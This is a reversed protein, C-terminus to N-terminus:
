QSSLSSLQSQQTLVDDLGQRGQKDSRIELNTQYKEM